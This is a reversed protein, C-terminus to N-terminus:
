KVPEGLKLIARKRNWILQLYERPVDDRMPLREGHGCGDPKVRRWLFSAVSKSSKVVMRLEAGFM